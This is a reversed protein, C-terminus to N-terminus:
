PQRPRGNRTANTTSDGQVVTLRDGEFRIETWPAGARSFRREGRHYLARRAALSPGRIGLRGKDWDISYPLSASPSYYDGLIQERDSDALPLDPLGVDAGGFAKLFDVVAAARPGGARAHAMLTISHPGLSRVAHPDATVFSQVVELRGLMAASFLTQRAGQALLFEAIERNGVHSAADIGSEWDGFGWDFAAHLLAPERQLMQKM